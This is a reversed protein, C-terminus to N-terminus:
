PVYTTCVGSRCQVKIQSPDAATQGTDTKIPGSPCGCGPYQSRCISEAANFCPEEPHLIGTALVNGCCDVQHLAVVCWFDDWCARDFKPFSASMANCFVDDSEVSETRGGSAACLLTGAEGGADTGSSSDGATGSDSASTGGAGAGLSGGNGSSGGAGGGSGGGGTSAGTGGANSGSNGGAAGSGAAGSAGSGGDTTARTESSGCGLALSAFILGLGAARILM